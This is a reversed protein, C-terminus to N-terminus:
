FFFLASVVLIIGGVFVVAYSQAVGTQIRRLWGATFEVVHGSGNVVGDIVRVDFFKWLVKESSNQIPRVIVADYVEDVYYKNFLLQYMKPFKQQWQAPADPTQTYWRWAM